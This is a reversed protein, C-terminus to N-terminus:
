GCELAEDLRGVIDEARVGKILVSKMRSTLGQKIVVAGKPCGCFRSLFTILQENAKSDVPPATVSIKLREGHVGGIGERSARPTLKIELLVGDSQARLFPYPEASM